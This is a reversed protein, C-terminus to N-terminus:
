EPDFNIFFFSPLQVHFGLPLTPLAYRLDVYAYPIGTRIKNHYSSYNNSVNQSINTQMIITFPWPLGTKYYAVAYPLSSTAKRLKRAGYLRALKKDVKNYKCLKIEM